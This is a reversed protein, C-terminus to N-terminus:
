HETAALQLTLGWFVRTSRYCREWSDRVGSAVIFNVYNVSCAEIISPGASLRVADPTLPHM